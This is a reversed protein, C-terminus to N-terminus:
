KAQVGVDVFVAEHVKRQGPISRLVKPVMGLKPVNKCVYPVPNVVEKVYVLGM